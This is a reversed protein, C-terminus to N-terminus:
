RVFIRWFDGASRAFGSTSSYDDCEWRGGASHPIIWHAKYAIFAVHNLLRDKVPFSEHWWKGVNYKGSERGWNTCERALISTDDSLLYFSGCAKPFSNTQATFFLVVNRGTMNKATVIHFTRGPIKKRCYFRLQTFPMKMSLAKLADTSLGLKKSKYDSIDRFDTSLSWSFGSSDQLVINSVLTWGGQYLSSHFYWLNQPTNGNKLTQPLLEINVTSFSAPLM